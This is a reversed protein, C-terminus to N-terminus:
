KKLRQKGLRRHITSEVVGFQQALEAASTGEAYLQRIQEIQEPTLKFNGRPKRRFQALDESRILWDRGMKQAPLRGNSILALIRTRTVGLIESAQQTTLYEM